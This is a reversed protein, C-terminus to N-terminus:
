RNSVLNREVNQQNMYPLRAIAKLYKPRWEIFQRAYPISELIAFLVCVCMCFVLRTLTLGFPSLSFLLATTDFQSNIHIFRHRFPLPPTSLVCIWTNTHKIREYFVSFFVARKPKLKQSHHKYEIRRQEGANLRLKSKLKDSKNVSYWYLISYITPLLMWGSVALQVYMYSHYVLFRNTTQAMKWILGWKSDIFLWERECKIRKYNEGEKYRGRHAGFLLLFVVINTTHSRTELSM